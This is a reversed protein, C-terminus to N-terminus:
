ISFYIGIKVDALYYLRLLVIKTENYGKFTQDYKYKLNLRDNVNWDTLLFQM